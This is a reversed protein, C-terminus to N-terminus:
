VAFAHEVVAQRAILRALLDARFADNDVEELYTTGGNPDPEAILRPISANMDINARCNHSTFLTPAVLWGVALTDFPTFGPASFIRQWDAQWKRASQALWRGCDDGNASLWDLNDPTLWMKSAVEWGAFTMPVGLKILATAAPPDLEFNLDRFPKTQEPTARFELGPRRGGVFIIEEVNAVLDPRESLTAAINTLPGLALITLPAEGIAAALAKTALNSVAGISIEGCGRYVSVDDRGARRIIEQAMPYTHDIACNGFVASIGVVDLEPSRLAQILAFADDVEGNGATIAPDTDIWVRRRVSM